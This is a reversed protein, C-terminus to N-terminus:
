LKCNRHGSFVVQLHGVCLVFNFCLFENIHGLFKPSSKRVYSSCILLIELPDLLFQLALKFNFTGETKTLKDWAGEAFTDPSRVPALAQESGIYGDLLSSSPM